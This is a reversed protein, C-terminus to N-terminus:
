DPHIMLLVIHAEELIRWFCGCGIISGFEISLVLLSSSPSDLEQQYNNKTWLGGLCIRDLEILQTLDEHDPTNLILRPSFM